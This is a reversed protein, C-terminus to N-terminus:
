RWRVPLYSLGDDRVCAALQRAQLLMARRYTLRRGSPVHFFRMMMRSEFAAVIQTCAPGIMRFGMDGASGDAATVERRRLIKVAVSDAILPRFEEILDLGLSARGDTTQHFLGVSSDLGVCALASVAEGLLLAYLYNLM